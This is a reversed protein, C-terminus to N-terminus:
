QAAESDDATADAEAHAFLEICRFALHDFRAGEIHYRYSVSM